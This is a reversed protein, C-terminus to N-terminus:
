FVLYCDVRGLHDQKNEAWDLLRVRQSPPPHVRLVILAEEGLPELSRLIRRRQRTNRTSAVISDLLMNFAGSALELLRRSAATPFQDM